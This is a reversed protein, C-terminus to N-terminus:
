GTKRHVRDKLLRTWECDPAASLSATPWGPASEILGLLTWALGFFEDPGFLRLLTDAEDDSVPKSISGLLREYEQVRLADDSAERSGPFPGLESLDRVEQRIM